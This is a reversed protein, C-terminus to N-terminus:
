HGRNLLNLGIAMAHMAAAPALSNGMGGAAIFEISGSKANHRVEFGSSGGGPRVCVPTDHDHKSNLHDFLGPHLERVGDVLFKYDHEKPFCEQNGPKKTAGILVYPRSGTHPDYYQQVINVSGASAPAGVSGTGKPLWEGPVRIVQGRNGPIDVEATPMAGKGLGLASITLDFGPLATDNNVRVDHFTVGRARLEGILFDRYAVGSLIYSDFTMSKAFGAISSDSIRLNADPMRQLQGIMDSDLNVVDRYHYTTEARRLPAGAEILYDFALQSNRWYREVSTGQPELIGIAGSMSCAAQPDSFVEVKAGAESFILASHLGFTGAGLVAVRVDELRGFNSLVRQPDFGDIKPLPFREDGGTILSPLVSSFLNLARDIKKPTALGGQAVSAWPAIEDGAMARAPIVESATLNVTLTM